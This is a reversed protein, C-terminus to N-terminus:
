GLNWKPNRNQGVALNGGGGKKKFCLCSWSSHIPVVQHLREQGDGGAKRQDEDEVDAEAGQRDFRSAGSRLSSAGLVAYSLSGGQFQGTTHWLTPGPNIFWQKEIHPTGKDLISHVTAFDM